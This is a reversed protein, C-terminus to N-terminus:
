GGPRDGQEAGGGDEGLEEDAELDAEWATWDPDEYDGACGSCCGAANEQKEVSKWVGTGRVTSNVDIAAHTDTFYYQRVGVRQLNNHRLSAGPSGPFEKEGSGAIRQLRIFEGAEGVGGIRALLDSGQEILPELFVSSRIESTPEDLLPVEGHVSRRFFGPRGLGSRGVAMTRGIIKQHVPENWGITRAATGSGAVANRMVNKSARRRKARVNSVALTGLPIGQADNDERPMVRPRQTGGALKGKETERERRKGSQKAGKVTRRALKRRSVPIHIRLSVSGWEMAERAFLFARGDSTGSSGM